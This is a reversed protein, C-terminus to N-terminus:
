FHPRSIKLGNLKRRNVFLLLLKKPLKKIPLLDIGEHIPSYSMEMFYGCQECYYYEEVTGIGSECWVQHKNESGCIYCKKIDEM